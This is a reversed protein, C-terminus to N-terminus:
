IGWKKFTKLIDKLEELKDASTRCPEGFMRTIYTPRDNLGVHELLYRGQVVMIKALSLDITYTDDNSLQVHYYTPYKIIWKVEIPQM